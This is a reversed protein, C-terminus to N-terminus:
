GGARKSAAAQVPIRAAVSYLAPVFQEGIVLVGVADLGARRAADLPGGVFVPCAISALVTGLDAETQQPDPERGAALVLARAGCREVVQPLPALPMDQGLYVVRYGRGLAALAFLLLGLEHRQGPVCALVLVAGATERGAHHLRAGLKNRLWATFFHEEAIGIDSDRWRTGLQQLAPEILRTSVLDLPYLSSAENYVADLRGASYGEVARLLRSLYDGWSGPMEALTVADTTGSESKGVDLAGAESSGAGNKVLRVAQSIAHGDSLLEQVCTVLTVDNETYLRHGKPTRRPRLLGYRREWARLTSTGVGTREALVRIPFFDPRPDSRSDMGSTYLNKKVTCTKVRCQAIDFAWVLTWLSHVLYM